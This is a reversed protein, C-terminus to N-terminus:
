NWKVKITYKVGEGALRPSRLSPPRLRLPSPSIFTLIVELDDHWEVVGRGALPALPYM